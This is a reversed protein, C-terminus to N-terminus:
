AEKRYILFDFSIETSFGKTEQLRRGGEVDTKWYYPTMTFLDLATEPDPIRIERKVERRSVFSFGPYETDQRENEYPQEYLIEKLGMLHREGPVAYLFFGGPKLVRFFEEAALPSFVDILLDCSSDAMPISFSSAVAFSIGKYKGAAAKVASKSIDFAFIRAEPFADWLAGTYYGEGCGADLLMAQEPSVAAEKLCDAALSCLAERFCEYYGKELFRRRSEVMERADGPLKSHMKHSLLLHLYGQRARDFSHGRACVAGQEKQELAGGCVPCCFGTKELNVASKDRQTM